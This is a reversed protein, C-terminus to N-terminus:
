LENLGSIPDDNRQRRSRGTFQAICIAVIPLTVILMLVVAAAVVIGVTAGSLGVGPSTGAGSYNPDSSGLTARSDYVAVEDTPLLAEKAVLRSFNGDNLLFSQAAQYASHIVFVRYTVVLSSLIEQKKILEAREGEETFNRTLKRIVEAIQQSKHESFNHVAYGRLQMVVEIYSKVGGNVKKSLEALDDPAISTELTYNEKNVATRYVKESPFEVEVKSFYKSKNVFSDTMEQSALPSGELGEPEDSVRLNLPGDWVTRLTLGRQMKKDILSHIINGTISFDSEAQHAPTPEAEPSERGKPTIGLKELIMPDELGVPVTKFMVFQTPGDLASKSLDAIAYRGDPLCVFYGTANQPQFPRRTKMLEMSFVENGYYDFRINTDRELLLEPVAPPPPKVHVRVSTELAEESGPVTPLTLVVTAHGSEGQRLRIVLKRLAPDYAVGCSPNSLYHEGSSLLKAFSLAHCELADWQILRSASGLTEGQVEVNSGSLAADLPDMPFNSSPPYTPFTPNASIDPVAEPADSESGQSQNPQVDPGPPQYDLDIALDGGPSSKTVDTPNDFTISPATIGTVVSRNHGAGQSGTLGTVFYIGTADFTRNQDTKVIISFSVVGVDGEFQNIVTINEITYAHMPHSVFTASSSTLIASNNSTSYVTNVHEGPPLRLHYMMQDHAYGESFVVTRVNARDDALILTSDRPDFVQQESTTANPWDGSVLYPDARAAWPRIAYTALAYTFVPSVALTFAALLWQHLLPARFPM